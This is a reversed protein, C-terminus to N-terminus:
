PTEVRRVLALISNPLTGEFVETGYARSRGLLAAYHLEGVPDVSTVMVIPVTTTVAKVTRVGQGPGVIVDAKLHVLEAVIDGFREYRGEVSRRELILNQGEVYGLARMGQVFARFATHVPEPGALASVEADGLSDM